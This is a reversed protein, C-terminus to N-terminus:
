KKVAKEWALEFLQRQMQAVKENHIETGWVEGENWTYFAVVGDYIDMQHPITLIDSPIYRSSMEQGWDNDIHRNELYKDGCIDRMLLGRRKFESVFDRMFSEGVFDSLDRFTYGVVESSAKLVNWVMQELGSKGQYYRVRTEARVGMTLQEVLREAEGWQKTLRGVVTQRERLLGRLQDLPTASIKTTNEALERSVLKKDQMTELLRYVKTRNIGTRRSISLATSSPNEILSTYIAAMESPLGLDQLYKNLENKNM